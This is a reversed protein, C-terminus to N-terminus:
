HFFLKQRNDNVKTPILQQGQIGNYAQYVHQGFYFNQLFLQDFQSKTKDNEFISPFVHWEDLTEKTPESM